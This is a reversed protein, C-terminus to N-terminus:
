FESDLVEPVLLATAEVDVTDGLGLAESDLGVGEPGGLGNKPVRVGFFPTGRCM